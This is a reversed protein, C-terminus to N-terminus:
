FTLIVHLILSRTWIVSKCKKREWHNCDKIDNRTNKSFKLLLKKYDSTKIVSYTTGRIKAGVAWLIRLTHCMMVYSIFITFHHIGCPLNKPCHSWVVVNISENQNQTLSILCTLYRTQYSENKVIRKCGIAVKLTKRRQLIFVKLCFFFM